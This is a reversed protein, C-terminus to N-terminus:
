IDFFVSIFVIYTLSAFYDNKYEHPAEKAVTHVVFSLFTILHYSCKITTFSDVFHNDLLPMNSM